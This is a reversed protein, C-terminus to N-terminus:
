GRLKRFVERAAVTFGPLVAGGDLTDDERLTLTPAGAQYVDILREDPFIVWVLQTGAQLYRDVKQRLLRASDGPSVVEVALDPALPYYRGTLPTLRERAVFGVDPACVTAPETFLIYGTEAASVEGLDHAEVFATVLYAVWNAVVGRKDGTPSMEVLAGEILEYRGGDRSREWLDDVTYLKEKVVM